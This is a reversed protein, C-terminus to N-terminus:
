ASKRGIDIQARMAKITGAYDASGFIASGSVFTDAGARAIEAANDVKVGGDIELRIDRKAADIRARAEALKPLAQPIFKQGGFGPNVSMLLILDIKDIVYDLWNLPTAPNFVLGPKCGSDRILQITRDVHQTAEPHFSIYSAGAKAFEPVLPDVPSIMLHVDIPADIGAKRLAECVLPGITLNPVYHNDMVDFHIWDAGAALVANVEDGLRAFDASLISPSIIITM